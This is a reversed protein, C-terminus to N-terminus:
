ESTEDANGLTAESTGAPAGPEASAQPDAAANQPTPEAPPIRYLDRIWADKDPKVDLGLSELAKDAAERYRVCRDRYSLWQEHTLVGAGPEGAAALIREVHTAQRVAACFTAIRSAAAVGIEGHLSVYKAEVLRRAGLVAWSLAGDLAPRLDQWDLHNSTELAPPDLSEQPAPRSLM